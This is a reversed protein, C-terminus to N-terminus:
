VITPPSFGTSGAYSTRFGRATQKSNMAACLLKWCDPASLILGFDYSGEYISGLIPGEIKSLEWLSKSPHLVVLKGM